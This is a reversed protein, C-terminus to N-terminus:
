GCAVDVELPAADPDASVTALVVHTDILYRRFIPRMDPETLASVFAYELANVPEIVRAAAPPPTEAAPAAPTDQAMAPTAVAAIAASLFLRRRM